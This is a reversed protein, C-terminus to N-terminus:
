KLISFILATVSLIFPVSIATFMIISEKKSKYFKNHMNNHIIKTLDQLQKNNEENKASLATIYKDYKMNKDSLTELHNKIFNVISSQQKDHLKLQTLDKQMNEMIEDNQMTKQAIEKQKLIIDDQTKLQAIINYIENANMLTYDQKIKKDKTKFYSTM